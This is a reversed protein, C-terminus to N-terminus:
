ELAEARRADLLSNRFLVIRRFREFIIDIVGVFIARNATGAQSLDAEDYFYALSLLLAEQASWISAGDRGAQDM